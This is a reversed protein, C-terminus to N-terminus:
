QRGELIRRLEQRVWEGRNPQADPSARLWLWHELCRLQAYIPEACHCREAVTCRVPARHPPKRNSNALFGM